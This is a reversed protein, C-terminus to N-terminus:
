ACTACRTLLYPVLTTWVREFVRPDFAPGAGKYELWLIKARDYTLPPVRLLYRAFFIRVINREYWQYVNVYKKNKTLAALVTLEHSSKGSKKPTPKASGPVM